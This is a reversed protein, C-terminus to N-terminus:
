LTKIDSNCLAVLQALTRIQLRFSTQQEVHSRVIRVPEDAETFQLPVSVQTKALEGYFQQKSPHDPCVLNTLSLQWQGQILGAVYRCIDHAHVLNVPLEAGSMVGRACFQRPHRGPGTLGALRLIHHQRAQQVLLEAAQLVSTRPSTALIATSEDVDGTLGAYIGTSSCLILRSCDLMDASCVIQRLSALYGEGGDRQLAPPICVVWARGRLCDAVEATPPQPLAWVVAQNSAELAQPNTGYGADFTRRTTVVSIGQDQCYTALLQGLWGAGIIAVGAKM